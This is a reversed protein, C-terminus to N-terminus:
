YRSISIEDYLLVTLIPVISYLLLPATKALHDVHTCTFVEHWGEVNEFYDVVAELCFTSHPDIPHAEYIGHIIHLSSFFMPFARGIPSGSHLYITMNNYTMCFICSAGFLKYFLASQLGMFLYYTHTDFNRLLIQDFM